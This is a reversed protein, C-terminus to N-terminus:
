VLDTGHNTRVTLVKSKLICLSLKPTDLDQLGIFSWMYVDLALIEEM